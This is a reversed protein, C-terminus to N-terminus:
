PSSSLCLILHWSHSDHCLPMDSSDYKQGHHYPWCWNRKCDLIPAGTISQAWWGGNYLSSIWGFTPCLLLTNSLLIANSNFPATNTTTTPRWIWSKSIPSQTWGEPHYSSSLYNSFHCHPPLWGWWWYHDSGSLSPSLWYYGLQCETSCQWCTTDLWTQSSCPHGSGTSSIDICNGCDVLVGPMEAGIDPYPAIPTLNIGSPEETSWPFPVWCRNAFFLTVRSGM